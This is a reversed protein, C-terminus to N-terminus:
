RRKGGIYGFVMMLVDYVFHVILFLFVSCVLFVMDQNYMNLDLGLLRSIIDAM